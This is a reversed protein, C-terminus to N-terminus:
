SVRRMRNYHNMAVPIPLGAGGGGLLAPVFSWPNAPRIWAYPDVYLQRIESPALIRDYLLVQGIDGEYNYSANSYWGLWGSGNGIEGASHTSSAALSGNIYLNVAGLRSFVVCVSYWQGAAYAASSEFLSNSGVRVGFKGDAYGYTIFLINPTSGGSFILQHNWYNLPRCQMVITGAIASIYPSDFGVATTEYIGGFRLGDPIWLPADTSGLGLTGQLNHGSFDILTEGGKGQISPSLAAALGKVLPNSPDILKPTVIPM